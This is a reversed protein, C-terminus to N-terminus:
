LPFQGDIRSRINVDYGRDTEVTVVRSGKPKPSWLMKLKLM